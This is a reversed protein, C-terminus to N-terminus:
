KNNARRGLGSIWVEWGVGGLGLLIQWYGYRMRYLAGVNCVVLALVLIPIAVQLIILWGGGPMGRSSILWLGIGALLIYAVTMEAGAIRRMMGAGPMVGQGSWMEPFPAFLGIQLARPVYEVVDSLSRFSVETDVNSGAHRQGAFGLRTQDLRCVLNSIVGYEKGSCQWPMTMVGEGSAGGSPINAVAILIGLSAFVGFWWRASRRDSGTRISIAQAALILVVSISALLEVKLLYPRVLWILFAGFATALIRGAAGGLAPTDRAAFRVWVLIILASGAISYVDKHIQGYLMAASPFVIYPLCAIVALRPPAISSFMLFLCAAGLAFLLANIPLLVWPQHIGTIAYAVAAIGIPSNGGPRLEWAPWGAQQIRQAMSSAEHHFVVWDGGALLGNGAHIGPLLVPLVVWQILLGVSLAYVFVSAFVGSGNEASLRDLWRVVAGGAM